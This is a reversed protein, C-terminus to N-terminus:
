ALQRITSYIDSVIERAGKYGCYTNDTILRDTIPWCISLHAAGLDRALHVDFSSGMFLNAETKRAADWIVGANNEFLVEPKLRHNLNSLENLITNRYEDPPDDTAVALLPIFGMVNTLFKTVGIVYNSDGIMVFDFSYGLDVYIDGVDELYYYVEREEEAIVKEVLGPELHLRNGVERLFKSTETPGVPLQPFVLYPIDFKKEFKRAPGIGVWPSLVINLEASSSRKWSDLGYERHGFLMNAKLGLKELLRRIERLNGRWFVDQYPIVGLVNVLNKEKKTPKELLQDILAELLLEYGRFSNGKFGGTLVYVVPVEASSFEKVVGAIDDGMLEVVCSTLVVFLDGDMIELTNAIQQRLREEGGFIVEKQYIRSCPTFSGGVYGTGQWGSSLCLGLNLQYACGMTSHVIPIARHIALVSQMGGGLSCAYRPAQIIKSLVEKKGLVQKM